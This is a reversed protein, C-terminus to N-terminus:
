RLADYKNFVNIVDENFKPNSVPIAFNIMCVHGLIVCMTTYFRMGQINTFRDAAENEAITTLRKYNNPISFCLM